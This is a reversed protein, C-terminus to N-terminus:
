SSAGDAASSLQAMAQGYSAAFVEPLIRRLQAQIMGAVDGIVGTLRLREAIAFFGANVELLAGVILDLESPYLELLNGQYDVADAFLARVQGTVDGSQLANLVALPTVEKVMIEGRGDIVVIKSNRM